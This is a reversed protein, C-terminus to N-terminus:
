DRWFPKHAEESLSGYPVGIDKEILQTDMEYLSQRLRYRRNWRQAYFRLTDRTRKFLNPKAHQSSIDASMCRLQFTSELKMKIKRYIHVIVVIFGNDIAQYLDDMSM